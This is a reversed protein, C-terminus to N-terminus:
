LIYGAQEKNRNPYCVPYESTETIGITENTGQPVLALPKAKRKPTSHPEPGEASKKEEPAIPILEYKEGEELAKNEMLRNVISYVSAPPQRITLLMPAGIWSPEKNLGCIDEMPATHPFLDYCKSPDSHNLILGGPHIIDGFLFIVDEITYAPYNEEKASSKVLVLRKSLDM